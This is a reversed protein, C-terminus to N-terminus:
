RKSAEIRLRVARDARTWAEAKARAENDQDHDCVEQVRLKGASVWGQERWFPAITVFADSPKWGEDRLRTAFIAANEKATKRDEDLSLSVVPREMGSTRM